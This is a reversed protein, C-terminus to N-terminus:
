NKCVHHLGKCVTQMRNPTQLGYLAAVPRVRRHCKQQHCHRLTQVRIGLVLQDTVTLILHFKGHPADAGRIHDVWSCPSEAARFDIMIMCANWALAKTSVLRQFRGESYKYVTM